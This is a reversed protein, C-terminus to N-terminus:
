IANQSRYIWYVNGCTLVAVEVAGVDGYHEKRSIGYSINQMCKENRKRLNFTRGTMIKGAISVEGKRLGFVKRLVKNEFV